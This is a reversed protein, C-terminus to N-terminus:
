CPAIPYVGSKTSKVRVFVLFLAYHQLSVLKGLKVDRFLPTGRELTLQYLSVHDDCM